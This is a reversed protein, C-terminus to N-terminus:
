SNEFILENLSFMVKIDFKDPLGDAERCCAESQCVTHLRRYAVMIVGSCKGHFWAQPGHQLGSKPM